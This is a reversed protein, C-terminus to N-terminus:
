PRSAGSLASTCWQPSGWLTTWYVDYRANATERGREVARVLSGCGEHLLRHKHLMDEYVGVVSLSAMRGHRAITFNAFGSSWRSGAQNSGHATVTLGTNARVPQDFAPPVRLLIPNPNQASALVPVWNGGFSTVMRGVQHERYPFRDYVAHRSKGNSNPFCPRLDPAVIMRGLYLGPRNDYCPIGATIGHDLFHVRSEAAAKRKGADYTDKTHNYFFPTKRRDGVCTCGTRTRIERGVSSKRPSPICSLL